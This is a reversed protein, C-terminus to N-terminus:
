AARQDSGGGRAGGRVHKRLICARLSHPWRTSHRSGDVDTAGLSVPVVEVGVAFRCEVRQREGRADQVAFARPSQLLAAARRFLIAAEFSFLCARFLRPEKRIHVAGEGHGATAAVGTSEIKVVAVFRAPPTGGVDSGFVRRRLTLLEVM